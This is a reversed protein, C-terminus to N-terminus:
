CQAGIPVAEICGELGDAQDFPNMWEYEWDNNLGDDVYRIARYLCYGDTLSEINSSASTQTELLHQNIVYHDQEYGTVYGLYDDTDYLRCQLQEIIAGVNGGMLSLIATSVSVVFTLVLAYEIMGHGHQHYYQSQNNINNQPTTTQM